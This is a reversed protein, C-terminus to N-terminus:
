PLSFSLSNAGSHRGSFGRRSHRAHRFIAFGGFAGPRATIRKVPRDDLGRRRGGPEIQDGGRDAIQAVDAQARQLREGGGVHDGALVAADGALQGLMVADRGRERGIVLVVGGLRPRLQEGAQGLALRDRQDGIGARRKNGIGAVFQHARCASAPWTTTATGPAEATNVASPTAPRGVSRKKKSPKRGGLCAARCFRMACSAAMGAVSTSNSLPGRKARRKGIEGRSKPGAGGRDAALEGLQM